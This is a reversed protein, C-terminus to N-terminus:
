VPRFKGSTQRSLKERNNAYKKAVRKKAANKKSLKYYKSEKIITLTSNELKM